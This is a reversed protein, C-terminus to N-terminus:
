CLIRCRAVVCALGFFLGVAQMVAISARLGLIGGGFLFSWAACWYYRGPDYSQFDRIPIEGARTQLVGYWLFGEDAPILNLSASFSICLPQSLPPSDLTQRCM